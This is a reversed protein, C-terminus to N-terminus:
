RRNGGFLREGDRGIARRDERLSGLGRRVTPPAPRERGIVRFVSEVGRVLGERRASNIQKARATRMFDLASM